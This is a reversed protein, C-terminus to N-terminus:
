ILGTHFVLLPQFSMISVAFRRGLLHHYRHDDHAGFRATLERDTIYREDVYRYKTGSETGFLQWGSALYSSGTFGMNPNVYTLFDTIGIRREERGVRALMYSISNIPAGEFAFLRSIVRAFESRRGHSELLEHLREVDVPSSVCLAVLRGGHTSLGYARGDTRASRLYHFREMVDRAVEFDLEHVRLVRPSSLTDPLAWESKIPLEEALETLLSNAVSVSVFGHEDAVRPLELLGKLLLPRVPREANFAAAEVYHLLLPDHPAVHCNLRAASAVSIFDSNGQM